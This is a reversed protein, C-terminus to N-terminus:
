RFIGRVFQIGQTIFSDSTRTTVNNIPVVETQIVKKKKSSHKKRSAIVEKKAEFTIREYTSPIRSTGTISSFRSSEQFCTM